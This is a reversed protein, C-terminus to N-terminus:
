ERRARIFTLLPLLLAMPGTAFTASAGTAEWLLPCSPPTQVAVPRQRWTRMWRALDGNNIPEFPPPVVSIWGFADGTSRDSNAYEV